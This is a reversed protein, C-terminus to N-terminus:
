IIDYCKLSALWDNEFTNIPTDFLLVNTNAYTPALLLM